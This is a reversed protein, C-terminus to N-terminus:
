RRKKPLGAGLPIAAAAFAADHAGDLPCRPSAACASRPTSVAATTRPTGAPRFRSRSRPPRGQGALPGDRAERRDRAAQEVSQRDTAREVSASRARADGGGDGGVDRRPRHGPRRGATVVPRYFVTLARREGVQSPVLARALAGMRAGKRPLLITSSISEWEGHRYSRLATSANTPGAAAVPVGAAISTTTATTSPPTPSAPADGPEFGTRIAM